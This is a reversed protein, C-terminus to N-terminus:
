ALTGGDSVLAAGNMYKADDSAVFAILKAVDAPDSGFTRYEANRSSEVSIRAIRM